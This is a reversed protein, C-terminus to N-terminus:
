QRLFGWCLWMIIIHWDWLKIDLQRTLTCMNSVRKHTYEAFYHKRGKVATKSAVGRRHHRNVTNLSIVKSM